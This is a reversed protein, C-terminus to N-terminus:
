GRGSGCRGCGPRHRGPARCGRRWRCRVRRRSRSGHAAADQGDAEAVAHDVPEVVADDGVVEVGSEGVEPWPLLGDDQDVGGDDGALEGLETGTRRRKAQDGGAGEGRGAGPEDDVRGVRDEGALVELRDFRWVDGLLRQGVDVGEEVEGFGGGVGPGVVLRVPRKSPGTAGSSRGVPRRRDIRPSRPSGVM